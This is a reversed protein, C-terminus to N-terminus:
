STHPPNLKDKGFFLIWAYSQRWLLTTGADYMNKLHLWDVDIKLLLHIWKNASSFLEGNKDYCYQKCCHVAFINKNNPLAYAKQGGGFFPPSATPGYIRNFNRLLLPPTLTGYCGEQNGSTIQVSCLYLGFHELESFLHPLNPLIHSSGVDDPTFVAIDRNVRCHELSISLNNRAGAWYQFGWREQSYEQQIQNLPLLIPEFLTAQRGNCSSHCSKLVRLLWMQFTQWLLLGPYMRFISVDGSFYASLVVTGRGLPFLSASFQQFYWLSLRSSYLLFIKSRTWTRLCSGYREFTGCYKPKAAPFDIVSAIKM